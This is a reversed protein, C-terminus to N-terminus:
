VDDDQFDDLTPKVKISYLITSLNEKLKDEIKSHIEEILEKYYDDGIERDTDIEHEFEYYLLNDKIIDFNGNETYIKVSESHQDGKRYDRKLLELVEETFHPKSNEFKMQIKYEITSQNILKIATDPLKLVSRAYSM